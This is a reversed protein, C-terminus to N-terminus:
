LTVVENVIALAEDNKGEMYTFEALIRKVHFIIEDYPAKDLIDLLMTKATALDPKPNFVSPLYVAKSMYASAGTISNPYNREILQDWIKVAEDWKYQWSLSHAHVELVHDFLDSPMKEQLVKNIKIEENIASKIKTNTNMESALLWTTIECIRPKLQASREFYYAIRLIRGLVHGPDGTNRSWFLDLNKRAKDYDLAENFGTWAIYLPLIKYTEEYEKKGAIQSDVTELMQIAEKYNGDAGMCLARLIELLVPDKDTVILNPFVDNISSFSQMM